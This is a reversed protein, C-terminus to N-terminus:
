QKIKSLYNKMYESMKEMEILLYKREKEFRERELLLTEALNLSALASVTLPPLEKYKQRIMNIQHNVEDATKQAFEENDSKLNYESGDIRITISKL